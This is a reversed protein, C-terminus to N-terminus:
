TLAQVCYFEHYEDTGPYLPSQYARHEHKSPKKVPPAPVEVPEPAEDTEVGICLVDLGVDKIIREVRDRTAFASEDAEPTVDLDVFIKM